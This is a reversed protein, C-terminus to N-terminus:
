DALGNTSHSTMKENTANLWPTLFKMDNDDYPQFPLPCHMFLAPGFKVILKARILYQSMVGDNLDCSLMYSETVENDTVPAVTFDSSRSPSASLSKAIAARERGLERRRLEFADVSGMTKELMWKLSDSRVDPVKANPEGPDGIVNTGRLWYVMMYHYYIIRVM